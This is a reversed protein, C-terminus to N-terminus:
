WEIMEEETPKYVGEPSNFEPVGEAAPTTSPSVNPPQNSIDLRKIDFYSRIGQPGSKKKMQVELIENPEVESLVTILQISSTFLTKMTGDEEVLIRLGESVTGDTNNLKDLKANLVKLTHVKGDRLSIRPMIKSNKLFDKASQM